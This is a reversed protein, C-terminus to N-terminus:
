VINKPEWIFGLHIKEDMDGDFAQAAVRQTDLPSPSNSLNKLRRIISFCDSSLQLMHRKLM